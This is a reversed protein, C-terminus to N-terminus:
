LLIVFNINIEWIIIIWYNIRIILLTFRRLLTRKSGSEGRITTGSLPNQEWVWHRQEQGVMLSAFLLKTIFPVIILKQLFLVCHCKKRNIGFSDYWAKRIKSVDKTVDMIDIREKPSEMWGALGIKYLSVLYNEDDATLNRSNEKETTTSTLSKWVIFKGCNICIKVMHLSKKRTDEELLCKWCFSGLVTCTASLKGNSSLQVRKRLLVM